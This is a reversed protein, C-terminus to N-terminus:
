PELLVAPPENMWFCSLEFFSHFLFRKPGAPLPAQLSAWLSSNSEQSGCSLLLYAAGVRQGRIKVIYVHAYMSACVYAYLFM